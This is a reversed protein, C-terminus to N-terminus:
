TGRILWRKTFTKDSIAKNTTQDLVELDTSHNRIFDTMTGKYYTPYGASDKKLNSRLQQKVKVGDDDFYTLDRPVLVSKEMVIEIKAYPVDGGAKRTLTLVFEKDSQSKVSADFYPAFRLMKLDDMSFDTGQFGQKRAHAAVRRVKKSGPLKVYIESSSKIVLGMGKLDAPKSFRIATRKGDKTLQKLIIEKGADNGGRLTMKVNRTVDPAPNARDDAEQLLADGGLKVLEEFTKGAWANTGLAFTFVLSTLTFLTVKMRNM